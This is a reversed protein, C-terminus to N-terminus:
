VRCLKTGNTLAQLAIFHAFSLHFFNWLFLFLVFYEYVCTYLVDASIIVAYFVDFCWLMLVDFCWFMLEVLDFSFWSCHPRLVVFAAFFVFLFNCFFFNSFFSSFLQRSALYTNFHLFPIIWARFHNLAYEQTHTHTHTCWMKISAFHLHFQILLSFWVQFACTCTSRCFTTM